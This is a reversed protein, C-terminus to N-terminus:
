GVVRMETPLKNLEEVGGETVLVTGGINVRHKGLCANPELEFVMGPKIVVNGGVMPTELKTVKSYREIGPLKDIGIGMPGLCIYPNLSHILPTLHWFGAKALPAEMAEVVEHFTKGPRIAKVGAEYSQRAMTACQENLHHVPKLAVAMQQQTELGGYHPFIEAQVVDGKEVIRPSQARYLWIPPGWSPNDAGSHLILYTAGPSPSAMHVFIEKMIEAYIESESIGPKATDLMAQCAMEGVYASHRILSLEEDSKVFTMQDFPQSVDMFKAKALHKLVYTWTKYSIVGEPEGLGRSELGVVGISGSDLGKEQLVAVIDVGSTGVRVDDIWPTEGRSCHEIHRTIFMANWTLYTAEGQYPFIVIGMYVENTLYGDFQARGRLGALILCDLGKNEMLERALGWRRDREKLSLTPYIIRNM